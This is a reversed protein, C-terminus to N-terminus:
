SARSRGAAAPVRRTHSGALPIVLPTGTEPDEIVRASLGFVSAVTEGTVVEEPSGHAVVRGECMAIMHDAYRAAQGLDHLVAIVTTGHEQNLRRCLELIELQHSVDLFTTPEDLLLTRTEQALVMAIWVRQRQGGSLDAVEREALELTGTRELALLVASEDADSWQRLMGQHPYRGRAVLDGVTISDPANASQPLFAVERAFEKPRYTHVAKGDLSVTGEGPSLIRGLARLFTSKGCANPGVIVTFSGPRIRASVERLVPAEANPYSLTLSDAEFGRATM